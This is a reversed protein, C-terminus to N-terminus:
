ILGMSPLAATLAAAELAHSADDKLHLGDTTVGALFRGGNRTLVNASNVEVTDATELYGAIYRNPIAGATGPVVALDNTDTPAGARIWDNLPVRKTEPTAQPTQNAATVWGDTSTTYPLVTTPYVKIGRLWLSKWLKILNAQLTALAVGGAIDNIPYGVIAHTVDGARLMRTLRPAYTPDAFRAITEGSHAFQHAALSATSLAQLSWGATVGATNGADRSDGFIGVVPQASRRTSGYVAIPGYGQLASTTPYGTTLTTKDTETGSFSDGEFKSVDMNYGNLPFKEGAGNNVSVFTAVYVIMGKTLEVPLPDSVVFGEAPVSFSAAGALKIPYFTSSASRAGAVGTGVIELVAKVTIANTQPTVVGTGGNLPGYNGFVFRLDASDVIVKHQYRSNVGSLSASSQGGAPPVVFHTRTFAPVGRAIGPKTEGGGGMLPILAKSLSSQPDALERTALDGVAQQHAEPGLPIYELLGDDM